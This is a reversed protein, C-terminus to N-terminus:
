TRWAPVVHVVPPQCGFQAEGIYDGYGGCYRDEGMLEDVVARRGALPGLTRYLMRRHVGMGLPPCKGDASCGPRSLLSM